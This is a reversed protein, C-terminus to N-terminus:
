PLSLQANNWYPGTEMVGDDGLWERWAARVEEPIQELTLWTSTDNNKGVYFRCTRVKMPEYRDFDAYRFGPAACQVSVNSISSNRLLLRGRQLNPMRQVARAMDVLLPTLMGWDPKVRWEHMPRWGNRIADKASDDDTGSDDPERFLYSNADTGYGDTSGRKVASPNGTWYWNGSPAM